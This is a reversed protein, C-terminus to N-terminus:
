AALIITIIALFGWFGSNNTLMVKSFYMEGGTGKVMIGALILVVPFGLLLPIAILSLKENAKFGFMATFAM